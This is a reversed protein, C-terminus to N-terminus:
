NPPQAAAAAQGGNDPRGSVREGPLFGASIAFAILRRLYGENVPPCSRGTLALLNATQFRPSPRLYAAYATVVQDQLWRERGGPRAPQFRDPTVFRPAHLHPFATALHRLAALPVPCGSALHFVRGNADAMREAIDVLGGVVHDIPVLDLSAGHGAPLMRIRGEAVLRILQYVAGFSATEGDAWRGAVISPRAVAVAQGEHQAAWVLTEAAAKSAEYGNNFQAPACPAEAVTGQAGGCVYATSVHLLGAPPHSTAALELVRATGDTNVRQYTEDPLSFGTVAACHVVLDLGAALRAALEPAMGLGPEAVDGEVLAVTGPALHGCYPQVVGRSRSPTGGRRLLGAVAHGRRALAACLEQGILGAAGTVLVRLARPASENSAM